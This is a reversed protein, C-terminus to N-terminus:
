RNKTILYAAEFFYACGRKKWVPELPMRDEKFEDRLGNVVELLTEVAGEPWGAAADPM